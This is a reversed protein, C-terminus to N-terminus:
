HMALAATPKPSVYILLPFLSFSGIHGKSSGQSPSLLCLAPLGQAREADEQGMSVVKAEM